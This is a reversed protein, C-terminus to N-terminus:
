SISLTDSFLRRLHFFTLAVTGRPVWVRESFLSFIPQVLVYQLIGELQIPYKKFVFGCFKSLSELWQGINTDDTKLRQQAPNALAEIVCYRHLIGM